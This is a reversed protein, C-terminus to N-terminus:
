VNGERSVSGSLSNKVVAYLNPDKIRSLLLDRDIEATHGMRALTLIAESIVAEDENQKLVLKILHPLSEQSEMENFVSIAALKRKKDGAELEKILRQHQINWFKEDEYMLLHYIEDLEALIDREEDYTYQSNGVFMGFKQRAKLLIQASRGALDGRRVEKSINILKDLCEYIKFDLIVRLPWVEPIGSLINDLAELALARTKEDNEEFLEYIDILTAIEGALIEAMGSNEMAELIPIAADKNGYNALFQAAEIKDWEDGSKLQEMYHNYSDRHKLGGLAEAANNKLQQCYSKSVEFLGESAPPYQVLCFYRTAYIKEELSGDTLLSLMKGTIDRSNIRALGEAIYEDWDAAHYKVLEFIKDTNRSNIENALARGAKEKIYSFIYDSNELLCQWAEIDPTNIITKAAAKSKERNKGLLDSATKNELRM